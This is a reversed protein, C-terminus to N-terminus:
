CSLLSGRSSFVRLDSSGAPGGSVQTSQLLAERAVGESRMAQARDEADYCQADADECRAEVALLVARCSRLQAAATSCQEKWAACSAVASALQQRLGASLEELHQPRPRLPFVRGALSFTLTWLSYIHNFM